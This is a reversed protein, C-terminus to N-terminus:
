LATSSNQTIGYHHICLVICKDFDTTGHTYCLVLIRRYSQVKYVLFLIDVNIINMCIFM